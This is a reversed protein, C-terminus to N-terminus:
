LKNQRRNAMQLSPSNSGVCTSHDLIAGLRAKGSEVSTPFQAVQEERYLSALFLWGQEPAVDLNYGRMQQTELVKPM